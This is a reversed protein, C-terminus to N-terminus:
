SPRKCNQLSLDTGTVEATDGRVTFTVGNGAFTPADKASTRKLAYHKNNNSTTLEATKPRKGDYTVSFAAGEDCTYFASNFDSMPSETAAAASTAAGLGALIMVALAPTKLM